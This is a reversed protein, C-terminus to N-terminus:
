IRTLVKFDNIQKQIFNPDAQITQKRLDIQNNQSRCWVILENLSSLLASWQSSNSELRSRCM